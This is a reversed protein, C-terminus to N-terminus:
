RFQSKEVFRGRDSGFLRASAKTLAGDKFIAAVDAETIVERRDRKPVVVIAAPRGGYGFDGPRM